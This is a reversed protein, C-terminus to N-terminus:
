SASSCWYNVKSGTLAGQTLAISTTVLTYSTPTTASIASQWSVVCSPATVYATGFLVTATTGSTGFTVLGSSDTGSITPTGTGTVTPAPRVGGTPSLVHGPFYVGLNTDIGFSGTADQSLQLAKNITQGFSVGAGLLLVLLSPLLYHRLKRM